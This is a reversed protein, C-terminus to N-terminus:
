GKRSRIGGRKGCGGRISVPGEQRVTVFRFRESHTSNRRGRSTRNCAYYPFLLSTSDAPDIEWGGGISGLNLFRGKDSSPASLWSSAWLASMPTHFNSRFSYSSSRCVRTCTSHEVRSRLTFHQKTGGGKAGKSIGGGGNTIISGRWIRGRM